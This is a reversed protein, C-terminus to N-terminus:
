FTIQEADPYEELIDQWSYAERTLILPVTYPKRWVQFYFTKKM